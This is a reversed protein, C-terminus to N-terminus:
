PSAFVGKELRFKRPKLFAAAFSWGGDKGFAVDLPYSAYYTVRKSCVQWNKREAARTVRRRFEEADAIVVAHDGFKKCIPLSEKVQQLVQDDLTLSPGPGLALRFATMCFVNLHSLLHPQMEMPGALDEPSITWPEGEGTRLTLTAQEWLIIGELRDRRVHDVTDRYKSLRGARLEGALMKDAHKKENYFKVLLTM